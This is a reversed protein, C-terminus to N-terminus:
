VDLDWKLLIKGINEKSEMHQHADRVESYPYVRDVVPKYLGSEFRPKADKWFEAILQGKEDLSRSRLTSGLIQLRKSVVQRLDIESKAGGGMGVLLLKGEVALAKLNNQFHVAGVLDLICNVGLGASREHIVKVFDDTKYNILHDAGLAECFKLKKESSATVFVEAGFRKAIQIAATGVGSAGAHILLRQGKALRGLWILELYATLFVEAVGGAEVLDLHDPLKMVQDYRVAVKEAYGGGSLLAMVRDGVNLGRDVAAAGITEIVGSVELGLLPSTGPPPPYLGRRQMLDAGNLGSAQVRILVEDLEIKVSDLAAVSLVDVEGFGEAVIAKM